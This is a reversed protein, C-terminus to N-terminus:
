KAPQSASIDAIELVSNYSSHHPLTQNYSREATYKRNYKMEQMMFNSRERTGAMMCDTMEATLNIQREREMASPGYILM